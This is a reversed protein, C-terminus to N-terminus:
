QKVSNHVLSAKRVDHKYVSGEACALAQARIVQGPQTRRPWDCFLVGKYFKGLSYSTGM